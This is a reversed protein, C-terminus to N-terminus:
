CTRAQKTWISEMGQMLELSREYTWLMIASAPSTKILSITLGRYLGRIGEKALVARITGLTGKYVPINHYVYKERSPGQVQLRKRVTDLPYTGSKAIVSALMGATADASGFPLNLPSLTVRFQEYAAFFIGMYPLIQGVGVVSGRYFGYIGEDHYIDRIGSRLTSYVRETGQAAFRTRLLDLPYTAATAAGGAVAGSIFTEVSSPTSAHTPLSELFTATGRYTSFQVGGYIIYLLEAPVNGKWFGRIGEDRLVQKATAIAGRALSGKTVPNLPDALSHIQLQLRIKIIDLPAVCFRSVLGGIAGATVVQLKSGEDKLQHEGKGSSSM